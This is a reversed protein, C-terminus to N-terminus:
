SVVPHAAVATVFLTTVVYAIQGRSVPGLLERLARAARLNRMRLGRRIM